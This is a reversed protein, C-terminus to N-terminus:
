KGTEPAVLTGAAGGPTAFVLKWCDGKWVAEAVTGAAAGKGLCALIGLLTGFPPLPPFCPLNNDRSDIGSCIFTVAVIKLCMKHSLCLAEHEPM